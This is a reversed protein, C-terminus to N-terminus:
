TVFLKPRRADDWAANKEPVMYMVHSGVTFLDNMQCHNPINSLRSYSIPIWSLWKLSDLSWSNSYFQLTKLTILNIKQRARIRYLLTQCVTLLHGSLCDTSPRTISLFLLESGQWDTQWQGIGQIYLYCCLCKNIYAMTINWAIVPGICCLWIWGIIHLYRFM